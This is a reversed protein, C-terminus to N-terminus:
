KISNNKAITFYFTIVYKKDLGSVSCISMNDVNMKNNKFFHPHKNSSILYRYM